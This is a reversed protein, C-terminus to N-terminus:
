EDKDKGNARDIAGLIGCVIGGVPFIIWGPHWLNLVFGLVLYIATCTLMVVGSFRALGHPHNREHEDKPLEINEASLEEVYASWKIGSFIFLIVAVAILVFGLCLLVIAQVSPLTFFGMSTFLAAAFICLTVGTAISLTFRVVKQKHSDCPVELYYYTDTMGGTIFFFVGLAILVLMAVVGILAYTENDEFVVSMVVCLIVGAFVLFMGASIFLAFKTAWSKPKNNKPEKREKPPEVFDTKVSKETIRGKLLDDVTVGFLESLKLLQPTEPYSDGTEWKSVAQNTVGLKDALETQTWGKEKRLKFLMAGFENM